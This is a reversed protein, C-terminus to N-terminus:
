IVIIIIIIDLIVTILDTKTFNPVHEMSVDKCIRPSGTHILVLMVIVFKSLSNITSHMVRSTTSGVNMCNRYYFVFMAVSLEAKLNLKFGM